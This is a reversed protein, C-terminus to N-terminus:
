VDEVDFMLRKFDDEILRVKWTEDPRKLNELNNDGNVYILDFERDRTNYNQKKFFEDLQVNDTETTNRWIVLVNDGDPATGEIVEVGRIFDRRTVTLGILYNFTEVLDIPRKRTEGASGTAINMTYNWPDNFSDVNLLSASGATELDMMYSLMYEEHLDPSGDLLNKQQETRKFELNNLADEYSELSMYKFLHSSGARTVPKGNKWSDSYIVKQIRPKLITDFYEGMEVLIYKRSGKDERNKNIVANATTGSGAFYDLVLSGESTSIHIVREILRSPKPTAFVEDPSNAPVTELLTRKAEQTHGVEKYTWLTQPVKGQRVESVFRKLRPMNDGSRGWWIRNDNDLELFKAKAVGWYRGSPPGDIVKGSPCTVAYLGDNYPNRATLDSSTWAGRPDNDANSYRQEMEDSRPLMNPVWSEKDKAFVFIYDHDESFYRTSNKPSFIKQWIISTVFNFDGYINEGVKRLASSENDDISIYISGFKSNLQHGKKLRDNIMSMWSSHRYQDKYCFDDSGVNYPPDIYICDIRERYKEQLVNLAQFNESHVLVGDCEGDFDEVGAVVKRKFEVGFFKTDLVLFPNQKLFEVTLPNSYGEVALDGKIEDIAFLEVWEKRQADNECIEGYLSEDVKDLTICYDTQIVFKKKLWLKKQFNELQELFMILKHAIRRIVKILSLYQEVRPASEEEIDDLHMVENKIYFDLERRLFGGLDKHIFYDFTNKGTYNNLHKQLISIGNVDHSLERVWDAFEPNELITKTTRENLKKQTEKTALPKYEFRITLESGEELMPLDECLVFRREKGQQAKNNAVETNAEVLKFNVTKRTDEHGEAPLEGLKFTYDRFNESSKIYYQDANAWHLKVEEGEYPIAYVDKKYRRLSLFDGDKYYRRFFNYLHSYVDNELETVNVAGALQDQLEKVKPSENPDMGADRITTILKELKDQIDKQGTSAHASFAKHVQPLLGKDLFNGIEDRKQNMIRYIGFDLDPRDIQFLEKLLKILRQYNETM